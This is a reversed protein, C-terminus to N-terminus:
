TAVHRPVRLSRAASAEREGRAHSGWEGAVYARSGVSGGATSAGAFRDGCIPSVIFGDSLGFGSLSAVVDHLRWAWHQELLVLAAPSGNPIEELVDAVGDIGLPPNEGADGLPRVEVEGDADKFLTFGGLVRVVQDDQLRELEADLAEHFDPRDPGLVILLHTPGIAMM